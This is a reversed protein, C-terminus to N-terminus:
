PCPNDNPRSAGASNTGLSGEVGLHVGTVLYFVCKGLPPDIPDSLAPDVLGCQRDALPVIAPDQTYLGSSKLVSLDGRYLNFSEFGAEQQWGVTAGDLLDILILGDNLDCVDGVFDHNIDSQDPNPTDPCNDCADGVKDGDTDDQLPNYTTPCNDCVDGRQDGDLDAQNPNAILICNDCANGFGDHDTDQQTPNYANVCNDCANHVGDGDTDVGAANEDINGDCNDDVGNCVEAAGPHILPNADNCDVCSTYGDGDQDVCHCGIRAFHIEDLQSNGAQTEGWAVGYEAGTWVISPTGSGLPTDTVQIDVGQKAGSADLRGFFVDSRVAPSARFDWAVGFEEGTWATAPADSFGVAVPTAAGIRVGAPTLGIFHVTRTGDGPDSVWTVGYQGGTWVLIAGYSSGPDNTVRVDPGVKTRAADVRTFYIEANGSRNDDWALGFDTGNWVLSSPAPGSGSPATDIRLEPYLKSGTRDLMTMYIGTGATQSDYWALGYRSGSWALVPSESPAPQNTVRVDGGIKAGSADLRAFYIEDNGDRNDTWALAYESGSWVLRVGNKSSSVQTVRVDAGIKAGSADLRAFYIETHGDRSDIWALGYASGSWALVPGVANAPGTTVRLEGARKEDQDCTRNCAPQDDIAGDCDNDRGDCVEAAGPHTAPDADNCDCAAGYGDADADIQDPNYVSPCNDATDPVGDCDQDLPGCDDTYIWTEALAPGNFGGGFAVLGGPTAAYDMPMGWRASPSSAPSLQSWAAGDWNWTDGRVDSGCDVSGGFVVAKGVIPHYGM